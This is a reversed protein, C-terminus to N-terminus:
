TRTQPTLTMQARATRQENLLFRWITRERNENAQSDALSHFQFGYLPKSSTQHVLTARLSLPATESPLSFAVIWQSASPLSTQSDVQLAMGGVSLNLIEGTVNRSTTASSLVAQLRGPGPFFHRYDRRRNDM